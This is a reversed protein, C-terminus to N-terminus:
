APNMFWNELRIGAVRSLHKENNTVLTMDHTLATAGILLDFDPILIGHRRLRAKETAFVPIAERIYLVRSIIEFDNIEAHRFAAQHSYEAGFRLEALTIESIHCAAVEVRSISSVVNPAKRMLKICIDTDLLYRM